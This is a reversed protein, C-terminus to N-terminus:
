RSCCTAHLVKETILQGKIFSCFLHRFYGSGTMMARCRRATHIYYYHIWKEVGFQWTWTRCLNLCRHHQSLSSCSCALRRMTQKSLWSDVGLLENKSTATCFRCRDKEEKVSPKQHNSEAKHTDGATNERLNFGYIM